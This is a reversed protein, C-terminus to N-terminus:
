IAKKYKQAVWYHRKSFTSKFHILTALFPGQHLNMQLWIPNQLFSTRIVFHWLSQWSFQDFHFWYYFTVSKILLDNQFFSGGYIILPHLRQAISGDSYLDQWNFPFCAWKWGRHGVLSIVIWFYLCLLLQLITIEWNQIKNKNRNEHMTKYM